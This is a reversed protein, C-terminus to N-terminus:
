QRLRTIGSTATGGLSSTVTVSSPQAAGVITTTFLGGGLSSMPITAGNAVSLTLLAGAANSGANVVLRQQGIRYEVLTITVADVGPQVTVITLAALSTLYGNSAQVVFGVTTGIAVQPALFTPKATNAGSLAVPPGSVQTWSFTLPLGQPDHSASADLGVAAGPRVTQNPGVAAVPPLVPNVTVDVTSTNGLLPNAANQVALNFTLVTPPAGPAPPPVIPASFSPTATSAGTLAVLPSGGIQTWTYTIPQPPLNPDRSASGDLTVFAGSAVTQAAGASAIPSVITASPGNVVVTVTAPSLASRQADSVMLQFTLSVSQGGAAITPATFTPRPTTSSSLAIGAPATWAYALPLGNPDTSASGDLTVTTGSYATAPGSAAAVPNGFAAPSCSKPAPVADGPWPSLQGVIAGTSIPNPGGGGWPGSGQALFPFDQLNMPVPQNGIGLNEPFLYESIPAHYQGALIGNATVTPVAGRIRARVERTAPLFIGTPPMALIKSPPRFRWRGLVAGTPPGPDVGVSGWPRDSLTGTCPEVDIGFLDIPRSPDTSFGEFRTRTTAEQPVGPLALGGVGLITVDIAVYAPDRGPSTFIGLNAIMSYASVYSGAVTTFPATFPQAQDLTIVGAYTVYDGIEFPVQKTPNLSTSGTGPPPMTFIPAYAGSDADFPRNGQPCDPDAKTGPDFRPLCMPYGTVSRVTPNDEDITFRVDSSWARGFRGIPDNIRVRQGTTADNVKGGVRLEGKVYDIHNVYGQGQNLSHQSLDVLGAIYTDGVRNGMVHAEYSAAPAPFDTLALGSQTPGWPKPALQFVEAWTLATAPFLVVTNRPVVIKQGQVTITGGALQDAGGLTAEQIFGTMDFPTNPPPAAAAAAGAVLLAACAATLRHAM